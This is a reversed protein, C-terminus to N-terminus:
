KFQGEILQGNEMHAPVYADQHREAFIGLTIFSLAVLILGLAALYTAVQSFAPSDFGFRRALAVWLAYVGFPVLFLLISELMTRMM